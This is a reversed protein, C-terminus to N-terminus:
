VMEQKLASTIIAQESWRSNAGRQFMKHDIAVCGCFLWERLSELQLQTIKLRAANQVGSNGSLLMVMYLFKVREAKKDINQFIRAIYVYTTPNNRLDDLAEVYLQVRPLNEGGAIHAGLSPAALGKLAELAVLQRM